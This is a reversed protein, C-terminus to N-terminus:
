KYICTHKNTVPGKRRAMIIIIIHFLFYEKLLVIFIVPEEFFAYFYERQSHEVELTKTNNHLINKNTSLEKWKIM